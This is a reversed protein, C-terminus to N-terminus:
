RVIDRLEDHETKIYFMFNKNPMTTTLKIQKTEGNNLHSTNCDILNGSPYEYMSVKLDSNGGLNSIDTYVDITEGYNAVNPYIVDSIKGYGALEVFFNATKVAYWNGTGTGIEKYLNVTTYFFGNSLSQPTIVSSYPVTWTYEDSLGGPPIIDTVVTDVSANGRIINIRFRGSDNGINKIQIDFTYDKNYRLVTTPLSAWIVPYAGNYNDYNGVDWNLWIKSKDSLVHIESNTKSKLVIILNQNEKSLTKEILKASGAAIVGEDTFKTLGDNEGYAEVIYSSSKNLLNWIDMRIYGDGLFCYNIRLLGYNLTSWSVM